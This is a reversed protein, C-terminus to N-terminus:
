DSADDQREQTGTDGSELTSAAEGQPDGNSAADPESIQYVSRYVASSAAQEDEPKEEEAKLAALMLKVSNNMATQYLSNTREGDFLYPNQIDAIQPELGKMFKLHVRLTVDCLEKLQSKASERLETAVQQADNRWGERSAKSKLTSLPVDYVARIADWSEGNVVRRTKIDAWNPPKKKGM